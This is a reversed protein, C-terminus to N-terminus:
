HYVCVHENVQRRKFRVDLLQTRSSVSLESDLCNEFSMLVACFKIKEEDCRELSLSGKRKGSLHSAFSCFM